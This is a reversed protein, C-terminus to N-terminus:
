REDRRACIKAGWFDASGTFGLRERLLSLQRVGPVPRTVDKVTIVIREEAERRSCTTLRSV